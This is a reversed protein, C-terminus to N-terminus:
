AFRKILSQTLKTARKRLITLQPPPSCLEDLSLGMTQRKTGKGRKVIRTFELRNSTKDFKELYGHVIGHRLTTFTKMSKFIWLAEERFPALPPLKEFSALLFEAKAAATTPKKNKVLPAGGDVHDFVVAVAGDLWHEIAGYNVVLGGIGLLLRVDHQDGAM